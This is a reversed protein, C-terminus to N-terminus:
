RLITGLNADVIESPTLWLMTDSPVSSSLLALHSAVGMSHYFRGLQAVASQVEGPDVRGNGSWTIQHVGIRAGDTVYRKVGGALVIVCASACTTTTATALGRRRVAKALALAPDVEGGDSRLVLGKDTQSLLKMARAVGADTITGDYVLWGKDNLRVAPEPAGPPSQAICELFSTEAAMTGNLLYRGISQGGVEVAFARRKLWADFFGPPVKDNEEFSVVLSDSKLVKGRFTTGDDYRLIADGRVPLKPANEILLLSFTAGNKMWVAGFTVQINGSYHTRASCGAGDKNNDGIITWPGVQREYFRDFAASAQTPAFTALTAALVIPRLM